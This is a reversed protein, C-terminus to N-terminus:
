KGKQYFQIAGADGESSEKVAQRLSEIVDSESYIDRLCIPREFAKGPPFVALFPIARSGLDRLLKEASRNQRTLDAVFFDIGAEKMLKAVGATRLSTREVLKCNPCWDATFEVVSIKGADRNAILRDPSFSQDELLRYEEVGSKIFGYSVFAGLVVIVVVAITSAIRKKRQMMISGYKGYQWFAALLFFIFWLTPVIYTDELIGILYIVTGLLLFGMIRELTVTWEGPGPIFKMLGPRVTLLIYPFAMGAGVSLFVAFIMVSSQLMAWALTGGLFPGSCPTALLTALLGKVYADIFRNERTAAVRGAIAPVGIVFLGFMSLALVFVLGIMAILFSTNKFLDGWGYDLFAALSALVSFVTLIGLSFLTGIAIVDRRDEGGQKIFGMIKLSVVPLVCPMFNLLFGAIFGFLVAQVINSIRVSEVHRPSFRLGELGAGSLEASPAGGTTSGAGADDPARAKLFDAQLRPDLEITKAGPGAVEIVYDRSVYQPICSSRDCILGEFNVKITYRGPNAREKVSFPIFFRTRNEYIWVHKEEKTATYKKGPLYRTQEFSFGEPATVWIRTARGTGPGLPNAYLYKGAPIEANITIVGSSGLPVAIEGPEFRLGVDQSFGPIIAAAVFLLPLLVKRVFDM